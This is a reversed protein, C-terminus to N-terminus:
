NREPNKASSGRAKLVPRFYISEAPAKQNLLKSMNMWAQEGVEAAPVSATTLPPSTYPAFPIDDFGVVSVSQPVRIGHTELSSLLGMAVLDNYALIGTAGSDAVKEAADAGEQFGVGCPIEDVLVDDHRQRFEHLAELRQTNSASRTIGALYALHRHGLKYLHELLDILGSRYDVAVIPTGERPDRNILVLPRLEGVLKNLEDESMRPACLIVGDTRRRAEIALVREEEIIEASDAVLVHYGDHAAARSIGRLIEQFTPNGLDPVVVAVTQTRRLVLSRALPSATYNLERAADKVRIAMSADVTSNGNMVRSVTAPSVGARKAVDLITASAAM